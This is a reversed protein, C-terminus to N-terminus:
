YRCRRYTSQMLQHASACVHCTMQVKNARDCYSRADNLFAAGTATAFENDSKLIGLAVIIHSTRDSVTLDVTVATPRNDNLVFEGVSTTNCSVRAM